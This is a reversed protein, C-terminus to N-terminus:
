LDIRWGQLYYFSFLSGDDRWRTDHYVAHDGRLIKKFPMWLCRIQSPLLTSLMRDPLSADERDGSLFGYIWVQGARHHEFYCDYGFMEKFKVNSEGFGYYLAEPLNESFNRYAAGSCFFNWDPWKPNTYRYGKRTKPSDINQLSARDSLTVAIDNVGNYAITNNRSMYYMTLLVNNIFYDVFLEPNFVVDWRTKFIIDVPENVMKISEDFKIFQQQFRFFKGKHQQDHYEENVCSMLPNEIIKFYDFNIEEKFYTITEEETLWKRSIESQNLVNESDYFNGDFTVTDTVGVVILNFLNKRKIEEIANKYFPLALEGKRVKGSLSFVVNLRRGLVNEVRKFFHLVDKGSDVESIYYLRFDEPTTVNFINDLIPNDTKM